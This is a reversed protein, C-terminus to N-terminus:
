YDYIYILVDKIESLEWSKNKKDNITWAVYFNTKESNLM